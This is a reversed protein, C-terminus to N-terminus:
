WSKVMTSLTGRDGVPVGPSYVAARRGNLRVPTAGDINIPTFQLSDNFQVDMEVTFGNGWPDFIGIVSNGDAGFVIGDSGGGGQRKGEKISLFNVNRTNLRAAKGAPERGMLVQLMLPNQATNTTPEDVPFTGYESYFLNVAQEIATATNQASVRRAKNLASTGVAFGAGALVMIIAIVVLLEILTFGRRHIKESQSKMIM